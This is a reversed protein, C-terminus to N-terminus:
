ASLEELGHEDPVSKADDCALLAVPLAPELHHGRADADGDDDHGEVGACTRRRRKQRRL